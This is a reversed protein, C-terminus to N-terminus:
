GAIVIEGHDYLDLRRSRSILQWLAGNEIRHPVAGLELARRAAARREEGREQLDLRAAALTAFIEVM